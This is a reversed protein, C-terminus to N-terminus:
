SASIYLLAAALLLAEVIETYERESRQHSLHQILNSFGQQYTIRTQFARDCFDMEKETCCYWGFIVEVFNDSFGKLQQNLDNCGNM